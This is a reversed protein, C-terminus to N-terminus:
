TSVRVITFYRGDGPCSELIEYVQELYHFLEDSGGVDPHVELAKRRYAAKLDALSYKEPLGLFDRCKEIIESHM